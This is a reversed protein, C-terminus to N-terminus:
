ISGIEVDNESVWHNTYVRADEYAKELSSRAFSKLLRSLGFINAEISFSVKRESRSPGTDRFSMVAHVMLREGIIPLVTVTSWTKAVPDFVGREEYELQQGLLRRLPGPIEVEPQARLIRTRRGGEDVHEDVIELSVCRLGQLHLDNVFHPEFFLGAWFDDASILYDGRIDFRM